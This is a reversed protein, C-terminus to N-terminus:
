NSNSPSAWPFIPKAFVSHLSANLSPRHIADTSSLIIIPFSHKSAIHAPHPLVCSTRANMIGICNWSPKNAASASASFLHRFGTPEAFILISGSVIIAAKPLAHCCRKFNPSFKLQQVHTREKDLLPNMPGLHVTYMLLFLSLNTEPRQERREKWFLIHKQM